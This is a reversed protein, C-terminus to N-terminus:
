ILKNTIAEIIRESQMQYNGLILRASDVNQVLM